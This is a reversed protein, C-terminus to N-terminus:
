ADNSNSCANGNSFTTKAACCNRVTACTANNSSQVGTVTVGTTTMVIVIAGTITAIVIAIGRGVTCNNRSNNSANSRNNVNNSGVIKASAHSSSRSSANNNGANSSSALASFRNRVAIGKNGANRASAHNSSRNNVGNRGANSASPATKNNNHKNNSGDLKVNRNASSARPRTKRVGSM